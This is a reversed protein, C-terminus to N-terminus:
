CAPQSSVYQTKGTRFEGFAETIEMSAIGGGAGVSTSLQVLCPSQLQERLLEDTATCGTTIRVINKRKQQVESGTM